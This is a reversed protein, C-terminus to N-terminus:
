LEEKISFGKESLLSRVREIGGELEVKSLDIAEVPEEAGSEDDYIKLTPTHGSVFKVKLDTYKNM